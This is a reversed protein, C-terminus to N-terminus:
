GPETRMQPGHQGEREQPTFDVARLDLRDTARRVVFLALLAAVIEVASSCAHAIAGLRLEGLDALLAVLDIWGWLIWFAWWALLLRGPESDEATTGGARWVDNVVQKPRGLNLVPVFWGWIAWEHGYRRVGPAVVDVNEYATHLWRIFVVAGAVVLVFQLLGVIDPHTVIDVATVVVILSFVITVARRRGGLPLYSEPM